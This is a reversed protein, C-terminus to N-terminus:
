YNRTPQGTMGVQILFGVGGVAATGGALTIIYLMITILQALVQSLRSWVIDKQYGVGKLFEQATPVNKEKMTKKAFASLWLGGLVVHTGTDTEITYRLYAVSLSYFLFATVASGLMVFVYKWLLEATEPSAIWWIYVVSIIGLIAIMKQATGPLAEEPPRWKKLTGRWTISIATVAAAAGGVFGVMPAFPGYDTATLLMNCRM